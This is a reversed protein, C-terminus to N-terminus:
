LLRVIEPKKYKKAFKKQPDELAMKCASKSSDSLM